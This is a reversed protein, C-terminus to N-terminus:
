SLLRLCAHAHMTNSMACVAHSVNTVHSGNVAILQDGVAIRGDKHAAGGDIVKTVFIGAHESVDTASSSLHSSFILYSTQRLCM